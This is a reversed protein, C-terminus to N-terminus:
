AHLLITFKEAASTVSTQLGLGSKKVPLTSITVEIPLFTKSKGFFACPLSTEQMGKGVGAFAQGLYKIVHQLFIWERQISCVVAAYSEQPYKGSIKTFAHINRWCKETWDKLWERKSKDDRIYGGIYHAGTCVKFGHSSGFNIGSEPNETHM